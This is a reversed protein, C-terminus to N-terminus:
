GGPCANKLVSLNGYLHAAPGRAKAHLNVCKLNDPTRLEFRREGSTRRVGASAALGGDSHLRRGARIVEVGAAYAAVYIGGAGDGNQGVENSQIRSAPRCSRNHGDIARLK